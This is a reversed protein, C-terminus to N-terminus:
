QFHGIITKIRRERGRWAKMAEKSDLSLSNEIDTKEVPERLPLEKGIASTMFSDAPILFSIHFTYVCVCVCVCVSACVHMCVDSM